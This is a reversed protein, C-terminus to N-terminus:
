RVPFLGFLDQMKSVWHRWNLSGRQARRMATMVLVAM